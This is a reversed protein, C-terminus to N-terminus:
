KTDQNADRVCADALMAIFGLGTLVMIGVGIAPYAFSAVLLGFAISITLLLMIFYFTFQKWYNM